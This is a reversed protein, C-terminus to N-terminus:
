GRVLEGLIEVTVDEGPSDACVSAVDVRFVSGSVFDNADFATTVAPPEYEGAVLTLAGGSPFISAWTRSGSATGRADSSYQVDVVTAGSGAPATGKVILDAMRLHLVFGAPIANKIWLTQDDGVALAGELGFTLVLASLGRRGGILLTKTPQPM